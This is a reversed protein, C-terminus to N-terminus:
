KCQMFEFDSRASQCFQQNNLSNSSEIYNLAEVLARSNLDSTITAVILPRQVSFPLLVIIVSLHLSYVLYIGDAIYNPPSGCACFFARFSHLCCFCLGACINLNTPMQLICYQEFIHITVSVCSFNDLSEIAVSELEIDIFHANYICAITCQVFVLVPRQIITIIRLAANLNQQNVELSRM